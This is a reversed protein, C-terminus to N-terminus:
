DNLSIDWSQLTTGLTEDLQSQANLYNILTNLRVNEANRLDNEFSLVQFNSSRGANLKQREIDLKKRSLDSIRLSIEYQRWRAGINRVADTVDREMQQRAEQLQLKQTEVNVQAQLEDQRASMDGVPIAVQVGFYNDWQRSSGSQENHGRLQSAGGVLSVDWLRNNRAVDLNVGAQELAIIQALWEPQSAEAETLAQRANIEIHRPTLNDSAVVPISLDLALLQLLALRAMDQQNHADEVALEQSAVDAETQVIDFEAMRGATIMARNVDVLKRSRELSERAIKVQEQALLLDRYAVIIKTVNQMVTSKLSLRNIQETLQSFRVPATAIDKGAGRLLPQIVTFNAGDNGSLGANKARTQSGAWQLSFRTGYPTLLTAAPSINGQNYRDSQNRNSLYSASLVLKPTFRDQAVRLDFKQSIRSLYISRISRNDRLGLYIADSLTLDIVNANMYASESSLNGARSAHSPQLEENSQAFSLSSILFASLLLLRWEIM